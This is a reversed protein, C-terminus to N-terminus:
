LWLKLMFVGKGKFGLGCRWRSRTTVTHSCSMHYCFVALIILFHNQSFICLEDAHCPMFDCKCTTPRRVAIIPRFISDDDDDNNMQWVFASYPGICLNLFLCFIFCLLSLVVIRFVLFTLYYCAFWALISNIIRCVSLNVLDKVYSVVTPRCPPLFLGSDLIM